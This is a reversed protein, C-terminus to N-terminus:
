GSLTLRKKLVETRSRKGESLLEQAHKFQGHHKGADGKRAM